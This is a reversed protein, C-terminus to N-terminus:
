ILSKHKQFNNYVESNLNLINRKSSKTKKQKIIKWYIYNAPLKELKFNFYYNIKNEM